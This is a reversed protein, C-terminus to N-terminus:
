QRRYQQLKWICHFKTLLHGIYSFSNNYSCQISSELPLYSSTIIIILVFLMLHILSIIQGYFLRYSCFKYIIQMCQMLCRSKHGMLAQHKQISIVCTRTTKQATLGNPFMRFSTGSASLTTFSLATQM